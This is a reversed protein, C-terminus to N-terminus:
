PERFPDDDLWTAEPNKYVLDDQHKCWEAVRQALFKLEEYGFVGEDAGKEGTISHRKGGPSFSM